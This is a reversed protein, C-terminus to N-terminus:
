VDGYIGVSIVQVRRTVEQVIPKEAEDPFTTIRDVEAKVEDLLTKINWGKIIEVTVTGIGEKSTSDIRKIGSLGALREEIRLIIAEEVEAPSAGPYSTIVSIRDLSTEPFVELKITYLTFIGALVLFVMLLNAAVHNEAFWSIISKM